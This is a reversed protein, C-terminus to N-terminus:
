ASSGMNHLMDMALDLDKFHGNFDLPLKNSITDIQVEMTTKPLADKEKLMGKHNSEIM